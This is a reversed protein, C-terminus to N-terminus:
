ANYRWRTTEYISKIEEASKELSFIMVDDIQGNSYVAGYKGLYVDATDNRVQVFNGQNNQLNTDDVKAGDEYLKVGASTTGGDYTAVVHTWVNATM